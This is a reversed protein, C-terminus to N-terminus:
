RINISIISKTNDTFIFNIIVFVILVILLFYINPLTENINKCLKVIHNNCYRKLDNIEEQIIAVIYNTRQDYDDDDPEILREGYIQAVPYNEETLTDEQLNM